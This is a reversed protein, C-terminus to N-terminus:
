DWLDELDELDEIIDELDEAIDELSDEQDYLQDEIDEISKPDIGVIYNKLGKKMTYIKMNKLKIENDKYKIKINCTVKTIKKCDDEKETDTVEISYKGKKIENKVKKYSKEIKEYNEEFDEFDIKDDRYDYCSVFAAIGIPDVLDVAGLIDVKDVVKAVDKVTTKASRRVFIGFILIVILLIVALVVIVGILGNRTAKFTTEDVINTKEPEESMKM